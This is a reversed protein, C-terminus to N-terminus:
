SSSPNAAKATTTFTKNTNGGLTTVAGFVVVIILAMMVGYEIATPGDESKLFDEICEIPRRSLMALMM